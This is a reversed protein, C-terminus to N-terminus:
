SKLFEKQQFKLEQDSIFHLLKWKTGILLLGFESKGISLNEKNELLKQNKKIYTYLEDMELIEINQENKPENKVENETKKNEKDVWQNVIQYSVSKQLFMSLTNAIQRLGSGYFRMSLALFIHKKDYKERDDKEVQCKSCDKCKYRQKDRIFGKKIVRKGNCFRCKEM